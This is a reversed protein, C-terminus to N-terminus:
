IERIPHDPRIGLVTIWTSGDASTLCTYTGLTFFSTDGENLYPLRYEPM